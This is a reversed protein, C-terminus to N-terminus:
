TSVAPLCAGGGCLPPSAIHIVAVTISSLKHSFFAVVLVVLLLFPIGVYNQQKQQKQFIIWVVGRHHPHCEQKLLQMTAFQGSDRLMLPQMLRSCRASISAKASGRPPAALMTCAATARARECREQTHSTEGRGWKSLLPSM